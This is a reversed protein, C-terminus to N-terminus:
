RLEKSAYYSDRSYFGLISRFVARNAERVYLDGVMLEQLAAEVQAKRAAKIESGNITNSRVDPDECLSIFDRMLKVAIAMRRRTGSDVPTSTDSIMAEIKNLMLAEGGINNGEGILAPTLLPNAHKLANRADTAENIIGARLEIDSTQGLIEKEKKAIEYYSQKDQAVLLDDYYKELSKNDVLGAAKIWNYTAANFEGIQPAFIYASEGYTAILNKNQIAWDKLKDTNKIVVKTQKTTPSVTYILKGPNKGIFTALALEYPDEVEGSQDKSISNLIEFFESRLSTIGVDKLYDPIGKSDQVTPAVPSILGLINRLVIINHASIRINKLYATKEEDSANPDMHLGNAANYAIAQQAATAEQRSQEDFPLIAWIKQLSAPVIARRVDMNEGINGLAYTDVKEAAKEAPADIYKGIFPISGPVSGLINKFALVSLGAIPGSLTPVGADQSFSPNMMRLKLTFESFQPQSYSSNGTLIRMASDTAAFIVNDMPMMVYEDGNADKHVSGTAGIGLHALRMRYLVRPSVDKLRYIRRYFDETARYYRGMTRAAYAFNSRIAPNDAYKLITDAAERTAVETFHKEALQIAFKMDADQVAKSMTHAFVKGTREQYIQRAMNRELSAYKKRLNAYGVMVAPQRFIGNVQADMIEMMDNGYRRFMGEVDAYDGVGLQSNVIGKLRNDVTADAFTDLDIRAAAQNWTPLTDKDRLMAKLGNYSNDVLTMLQENFKNSGGHFTTFMDNFMRALQIRAIDADSRQMERQAVTNATDEVFAKVHEANVTKWLGTAPNIEFGVSRMGADLALEFMEKGSKADIEDPRLGNYRFFIEAPNLITKDNVKFKNGAFQKVFKEFHVLAQERDALTAIDIERSAPNFKVTMEDMALSLNSPTVFIGQAERGFQGSVGSRAVISNAVSSLADPQYIFAQRLYKETDETLYRSYVKFTEDVIAMRKELNTLLEPETGLKQALDQIIEVRRQIDIADEPSYKVNRGWRAVTANRKGGIELAKRVSRGIFGTGSDSGTYARTTRGAVVGQSWSRLDKGPAALMFMIGEDIASRIGLRPFLTLISWADVIKKSHAGQTAGGVANILNKKSKIDWIMSGIVDYPLSAVAGRSQYPHLAGMGDVYTGDDTVKYSGDPMHRAHSPNISEERKVAFGSKTAYKADLIEEMLKLGRVDGGLGMSYMTATDLNRLIVYQEAVNAELFKVTLAQAMDKPLIQRARATFNAATSVANEGVRVELGAPSRSALQGYFKANKWGRIEKNAEMVVKLDSTAPNRLRELASQSNVLSKYVEDTAEDLQKTTRGTTQLAGFKRGTTSNFVSDLFSNLGDTGLRRNRAVAVGNRMYTLGDVRGALLLHLNAANEFYKQASAANVVGEPLHEDKKALAEIAARNNYGPFRRALDDFAQSKAAATPAESYTKIAPGLGKDWFEYLKPEAKFITDIARESTIGKDMMELVTAAIRDGKTVGKSLGGTLWTLPDVAIQYVFDIVGSINQNKGKLYDGAIGGGAPPKTDFMRAIDRGPSIQTYKVGDMVNTFDSDEDYAKKISELIKADVSGYSELIEGPTKGALLGKAVFVDAEGFYATVEKLAGQDYMETGNWADTWVKGSFLDEGQAVQRAVKYPTNIMRNYQGGLKFLGILPSAFVHAVNGISGFFRRTVSEPEVSYDTDKFLFKLQEQATAELSAFKQKAADGGLKILERHMKIAGSMENVQNLETGSLNATKAASYLNPSVEAVVPRLYTM